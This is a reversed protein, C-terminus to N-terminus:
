YGSAGGSTGEHIREGRGAGGSEGKEYVTAGHAAGGSDTEPAIERRSPTNSRDEQEREAYQQPEESRQMHEQEPSRDAAREEHRDERAALRNQDKFWGRDRYRVFSDHNRFVFGYRVYIDPGLANFFFRHCRRPAPVDRNLYFECPRKADYREPGAATNAHAAAVSGGLMAVSLAIKTLGHM